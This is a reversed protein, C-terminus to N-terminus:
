RYKSFDVRYLEENTKEPQQAPQKPQGRETDRKAWNRITLSHNRYKAGKQEIYEDLRRIYETVTPEGLDNILKSLEEDTLLVHGFEGHHHKVPKECTRPERKNTNNTIQYQKNNTNNTDIQGYVTNETDTKVTNPLNICPSLVYVNKSFQGKDKKQKVSIYRAKTLQDLYKTFTGISINLDYCIKDRSPFAKGDKGAYGAIYSYIVKAIPHLERDCLVEKPVIAFGSNHKEKM